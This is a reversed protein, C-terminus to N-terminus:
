RGRRGVRPLVGNSDYSFTAVVVVEAGEDNVPSEPSSGGEHVQGDGGVRRARAPPSYRVGGGLAAGRRGPRAHVHHRREALVAADVGHAPKAALGPRCAM